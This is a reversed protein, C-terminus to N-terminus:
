QLPALLRCVQVALKFSFRRKEYDAFDVAQAVSLDDEFMAAVDQVFELSTVFTMVEFNLRFSRNDLNVTGVGAIARGEAQPDLGDVLIVKQHMFGPQYRYLKIGASALEDYYSFSSLYVMWHDARAPLIIRVDVGKLAATQLANLTPEDPVFYPSAIWIRQQAGHILSAFWYTCDDLPEVPGTPFVLATQNQHTSPTVRWQAEPLEERAWYWDKLFAIQLGQVTPGEVRVHTDRWPGFKPDKGLYEDGINLGGVFGVTGDVILIKRHNRFNIQFRGRWGKTSRFVAVQVGNVRLARIYDPSLGHTGIADYLLHIRVGARAREILAQQFRTGIEDGHLIYTQLFVYDQAQAIAALMAGFTAEGNCLLQVSNGSTFAIDTLEAALCQLSRLPPPLPRVFDMLEQYAEQTLERHQHYVTRFAESYGRFESRGLVWYLPLGIWPFMILSLSWAIAGQSSRVTMVAHAANWLGLSHVGIVVGSAVLSLWAWVQEM